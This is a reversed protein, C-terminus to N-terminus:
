GSKAISERFLGLPNEGSFLLSGFYALAGLPMIIFLHADFQRLLVVLVSMMFAALLIPPLKKKISFANIRYMSRWILGNILVQTVLSAWAAGSIGLRPILLVNLGINLIAGASWLPVLSKQKNYAFVGHILISVPFATLITVALIRIPAASAAYDAGYLFEIIQDATLMIGLATPFAILFVLHLGRELVNRFEEKKEQAFRALAPFFGGVILTPLIYFLVIPKQAASYFGVDEAARFWGIMVTDTNVLLAGFVAALSLPWAAQVIPRVLSKDFSSFLNKTHKRLINWTLLLGVAAGAAYAVALSEPTSFFFLAAIGGAVIIAQTAINVYAEREMREEARFLSTGFRRLSDFIFLLGIYIILTQSIAISTFVTSVLVLIILSIVILVFKLMLATSFYPARSKPAKTTERILVSSIGIDSFITFVAALSTLYSFTGWGAAGLARAAYIIVFVRLIRGAVESISLWLTNKAIVQEASSNEFLFTRMRRVIGSKEPM